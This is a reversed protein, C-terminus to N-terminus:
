RLSPPLPPSRHPQPSATDWATALHTWPAESRRCIAPSSLPLPPPLVQDLPAAAKSAPGAIPPATRDSVARNSSALRHPAPARKPGDSASPIQATVTGAPYLAVSTPTIGSSQSTPNKPAIEDNLVPGNPLLM